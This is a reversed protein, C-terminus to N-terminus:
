PVPCAVCQKTKSGQECCVKWAKLADFVEEQLDQIIDIQESREQELAALAASAESILQQIGAITAEISSILDQGAGARRAAALRGRAARLARQYGEILARERSIEADIEDLIKKEDQYESELLEYNGKEGSCNCCEEKGSDGNGSQAQVADLNLCLSTVFLLYMMLGKSMMTKM